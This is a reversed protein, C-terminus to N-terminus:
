GNVKSDLGKLVEQVTRVLEKRRTRAEEEGNTEVEDLKLLVQQMVTESLKRHEDERKKPDSPPSATFQVCLPLLKTTFHSSIANLKDLPGSAAASGGSVGSAPSQPRSSGGGGGPVELNSDRPSDSRNRNKKSKSKKKNKSKKPRGEDDRGVVVVEESSGSSEDDESPEPLVVLIESNNKVNFNCVPDMDDKLQRGKYLLKIKRTRRDSLKMIMQVRERVDGVLLKGDGISYAPFHEPYTVGKHKILLIDDDDIVLSPGGASRTYHGGGAMDHSGELDESTIYSYDEDTVEPVGGRGDGLGSSFPSLGGREQSSWGRRSMNKGGAEKNSKNAVSKAYATPIVGLLIAAAAASGYFLTPDVGTTTQIYQSASDISTQVSSPLQKVLITTFNAIHGAVLAGSSALASSPGSAM